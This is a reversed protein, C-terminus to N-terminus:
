RPGRCAALVAQVYALAANDIADRAPWGSDGPPVSWTMVRETLYARAEGWETDSMGDAAGSKNMWLAQALDLVGIDACEARREDTLPHSQELLRVCAPCWGPVVDISCFDWANLDPAPGLGCLTPANACAIHKPAVM